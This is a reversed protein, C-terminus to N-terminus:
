GEGDTSDNPGRRAWIKLFSPKAAKNAPQTGLVVAIAVPPATNKPIYSKETLKPFSFGLSCISFATDYFLEWTSSRPSVLFYICQRTLLVIMMCQMAYETSITAASHSPRFALSPKVLLSLQTTLMPEPISSVTVM